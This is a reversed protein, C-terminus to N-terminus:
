GGMDQIGWRVATISKEKSFGNLIRECSDSDGQECESCYNHSYSHHESEYCIM